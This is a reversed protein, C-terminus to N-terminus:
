NIDMFLFASNEILADTVEKMEREFTDLDRCNFYRGAIEATLFAHNAGM